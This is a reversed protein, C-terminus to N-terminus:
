YLPKSHKNNQNMEIKKLSNVSIGKFGPNSTEFLIKGRKEFLVKQLKGGKMIGSVRIGDTAPLSYFEIDAFAEPVAPFVRIEDDVSQLAMAVPVVTFSAYGTLFYYLTRNQECMASTQPDTQTLCYASKEYAEEARGWYADTLAFWNALFTIMGEGKKNRLWCQNLSKNVKSESLDKMQELAPFGLYVYGRIGMYGAGARSGDDGSFELYVNNRDRFHIKRAIDSWKKSLDIDVGLREADAAAQTLTWRAALLGDLVGTEFLDETVSLLPPLTYSKQKKDYHLITRWFEASGRLVSYVTDSMEGYLKQFNKYMAPAFGQIHIQKDWPTVQHNHGDFLNEHAFCIADPNNCTLYTTKGKKVGGYIFEHEGVPFMETVNDHLSEPRYFSSLMNGARVSDGLLTYALTAWGAGGYTFPIQQWPTINSLNQNTQLSYENSIHTSFAGFQCEGPLNRKAGATCQLWHLSRYYTRAYEGEPLVVFGMSRWNSEWHYVNLSDLHEFDEINDFIKTNIVDVGICVVIELKEGAPIKLFVDKSFPLFSPNAFGAQGFRINSHLTYNLRSFSGAKSVCSVTNESFSEINMEFRGMDINCVLETIGKNELSYVFLHKNSHSFFMRSRYGGTEYDADTTLVGTKLDYKQSYKVPRLGAFQAMKLMMGPGAVRGERNLYLDNIEINAVGRGLPDLLGGMEMNGSMVPLNTNSYQEYVVSYKELESFLKSYIDGNASITASFYILIFIFFTLHKM